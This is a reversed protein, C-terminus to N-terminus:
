SARFIPPNGRFREKGAYLPSQAFAGVSSMLARAGAVTGGSPATVVVDNSVATSRGRGNVLTATVTCIGPTAFSHSADGNGAGNSERVQRAQAGSGDGWSWTVSRTGVRDQDVLAVSTKLPVGAKVM